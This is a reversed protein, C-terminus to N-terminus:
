PKAPHPFLTSAPAPDPISQRWAKRHVALCLEKWEAAGIPVQPDQL